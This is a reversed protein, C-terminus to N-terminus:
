RLTEWHPPWLGVRVPIYILMSSDPYIHGTAHVGRASDIFEVRNSFKSVHLEGRSLFLGPVSGRAVYHYVWVRPHQHTYVITWSARMPTSFYTKSPPPPAAWLATPLLALSLAIVLIRKFMIWVGKGNSTSIQKGRRKGWDMQTAIATGLRGWQATRDRPDRGGQFEQLRSSWRLVLRSMALCLDAWVGANGIGGM